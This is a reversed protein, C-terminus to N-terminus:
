EPNERARVLLLTFNSIRVSRKAKKQFYYRQSLRSVLQRLPTPVRPPRAVTFFRLNGSDLFRPISTYHFLKV